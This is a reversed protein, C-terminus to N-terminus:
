NKMRPGKLKIANVGITGTFMIMMIPHIRTEVQTSLSTSFEMTFHISFHHPSNHKM